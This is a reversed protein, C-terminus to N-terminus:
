KGWDNDDCSVEEWSIVARTAWSPSIGGPRVPVEIGCLTGAVYRHNGDVITNTKECIKIAPLTKGAKYLNFFRKVKPISIATQKTRITASRMVIAINEANIDIDSVIQVENGGGEEKNLSERQKCFEIGKKNVIYNFDENDGKEGSMYGKKVFHLHLAEVLNKPIGLETTVQILDPKICNALTDLTVGIYGAEEDNKIFDM